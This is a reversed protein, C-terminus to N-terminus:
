SVQLYKRREVLAKQTSSQLEFRETKKRVTEAHVAIGYDKEIGKTISVANEM